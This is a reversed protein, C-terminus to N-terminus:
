AQDHGLGEIVGLVQVVEEALLDRVDTVDVGVTGVAEHDVEGALVPYGTCDIRDVCASTERPGVVLNDRGGLEDVDDARLFRLGGTLREHLALALLLPAGREAVLQELELSDVM